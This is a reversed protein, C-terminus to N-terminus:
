GLPANKFNCVLKVGGPQALVNKKPILCNSHHKNISNIYNNGNM